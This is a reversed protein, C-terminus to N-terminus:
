VLLDVAKLTLSHKQRFLQLQLSISSGSSDHTDTKYSTAQPLFYPIRWKNLRSFEYHTAIGKPAQTYALSPWSTPLM